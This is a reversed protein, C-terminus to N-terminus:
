RDEERLIAAVEGATKAELLQERGGAHLVGMISAVFQLYPDAGKPPTLVLIFIRTPEGDIAGFDIGAAKIGIACVLSRVENTRGHPVAIGGEMGTSMQRERDLVVALARDRDRVLGATDLLEVLETIVGEGTKSELGTKVLEPRIYERLAFGRRSAASPRSRGTFVDCIERATGGALVARRGREDLVSSVTSMFQLHPSPGSEPSITMVIIRAPEGDLSDFDVGERKIGVACVLRDVADTRGHPIAVGHEMGTSMKAERATVAELARDRDRLYGARDLVGVLEAIVAEKSAGALEPVVLEPALYRALDLGTQDDTQLQSMRAIARPDVPRQMNRIAEEFAAMAEVVATKVLVVDRSYCSFVLRGDRCTMDISLGERRINYLGRDRDVLHVFCGDQEFVAIQKRLFFSAMEPSPFDFDLSIRDGTDEVPKRTGRASSRFLASLVFPALTTNVLIMILSAAFIESTLLPRGNIAYDAGLSAVILAVECRPAMGFGIRAAGTLNFGSLLAPLGGGIVKAAMAATAFVLGFLLVGPDLLVTLDLKMGTICFFAPVFLVRLPLLKERVLHNIDSRSLSLGVVFAGVIMALGAQEFIGSVVLAIGLATVAITERSRSLKLAASIWRACLLGVATVGLWVGVARAAIWGIGGWDVDGDGGAGAAVIGLVVALLVIGLVDDIVAATLITVGEPSDLKKRESLIRATVGISTATAVVGVFLCPPALLGLESGYLMTSFLKVCWCGGFFSLVMGGVGVLGGALSYRLLLKLDTELGVDFLLIIAAVAALTQLEPSIVLPGAFGFLGHRFGPLPVGGLAFPSILMGMVLEGIAEPLGLRAFVADGLRVAFIIIGFQIVLLMMRHAMGGGHVGGGDGALAPAALCLALFGAPFVSGSIRKVNM